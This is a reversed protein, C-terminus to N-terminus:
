SLTARLLGLFGSKRPKDAHQVTPTNNTVPAVPPQCAAEEQLVGQTLEERLSALAKELRNREREWKLAAKAQQRDLEAMQRQHRQVLHDISYMRKELTAVGCLCRIEGWALALLARAPEGPVPDYEYPSGKKHASPPATDIPNRCVCLKTRRHRM